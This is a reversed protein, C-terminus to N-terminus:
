TTAGTSSPISRVAHEARQSVSKHLSRLQGDLSADFVTDGIRVVLGGLINPDVSVAIRVEKKLIAGLKETLSREADASLRDSVTVVARVRGAMDDALQSAAKQISRLSGLRQRRGLVKLFTLLTNDMKGKFIRDLMENKSEVSLKPNAIAADLAPYKDLVGVVFSEFEEVVQDIKDKAVAGLLATAYIEGIQQEDSDFVTPIKSVQESM